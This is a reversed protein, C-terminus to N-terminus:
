PPPTMPKRSRAQTAGSACRSSPCGTCRRRWCSTSNQVVPAPVMSAPAAVLWGTVKSARVAPRRAWRSAHQEVTSGGMSGGRGEAEPLQDFHLRAGPPTLEHSRLPVPRRQQRLGQHARQPEKGMSKPLATSCSSAAASCAPYSSSGAKKCSRSSCSSGLYRDPPVQREAVRLRAECASGVSAAAAAASASWCARSTCAAAVQQLFASALM